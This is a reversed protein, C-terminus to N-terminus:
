LVNHYIIDLLEALEEIQADTLDRYTKKRYEIIKPLLVKVKKHAKDTLYINTKRRDYENTKRIVLGKTVLKDIIRTLTPPDKYINLGIESQSSGDHDLLYQIVVWQETTLDSDYKRLVYKFAHRMKKATREILYVPVETKKM